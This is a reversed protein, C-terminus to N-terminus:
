HRETAIRNRAGVATSAGTDGIAVADCLTAGCAGEQGRGLTVCHSENRRRRNRSRRRGSLAACGISCMSFEEIRCTCVAAARAAQGRAATCFDAGVRRVIPLAEGTVREGIQSLATGILPDNLMSALSDCAATLQPVLQELQDAVVAARSDAVGIRACADAMARRSAAVSMEVARLGDEVARVSALTDLHAHHAADREDRVRLFAALADAVDLRDRQIDAHIAQFRVVHPDAPAGVFGFLHQKTAFAASRLLAAILQAVASIRVSEDRQLIAEIAASESASAKPLALRLAATAAALALTVSHLRTRWHADGCLGLDLVLPEVDRAAVTSSMTEQKKALNELKLQIECM